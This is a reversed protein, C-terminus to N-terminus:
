EAVAARSRASLTAWSSCPLSPAASPSHRSRACWCRIAHRRDLKQLLPGDLDVYGCSQAVLFAPAMALSTGCMNGVMLGLGLRQAEDRM